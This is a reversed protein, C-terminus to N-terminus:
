MDTVNANWYQESPLWHIKRLAQIKNELREARSKVPQRVAHNCKRLREGNVPNPLTYPPDEITALIYAGKDLVQVIEFPGDWKRAFKHSHSYKLNSRYRYVLDGKQFKISPTKQQRKQQMKQTTEVAAERLRIIKENIQLVREKEVEDITQEETSPSLRVEVPLTLEEGYLLNAPTHKTSSHRTTRYALLCQDIKLDWDKGHCTRALQHALTQNLREVMGNSQPHYATSFHHQIGWEDTLQKIVQNSFHTGNDTQLHRPSGFRPLIYTKLFRSVEEATASRLPAAEAWRTVCEVAVCIYRYRRGTVPLPGILDMQWRDFIKKVLVPQSEEHHTPRAHQCCDVCETVHAKIDEYMEPWWFRTSIIGFTADTQPHGHQNHLENLVTRREDEHELVPIWSNKKKRYLIGDTLKFMKAQKKIRNRRNRSGVIPQGELYRRIPKLEDVIVQVQSIMRSLADAPNKKGQRHVVTYKFEQLELAWRALQGKLPKTGGFITKLASHDTVLTFPSGLYQAFKNVAWYVALAELKTPAYNEEHKHLRRSAYQVVHERDDADKQSLIAGLGEYSADTTVIFPKDLDPHAMVNAEMMAKKIDDFAKQQEEKWEFPVDKRLLTTLPKAMTALDKIFARYYGVLGMFAQINKVTTPIPM